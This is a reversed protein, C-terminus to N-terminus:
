NISHEELFAIAQEEPMPKGFLFGQFYDCNEQALNRLQLDFEVGEAIVGLKLTHALDIITATMAMEVGENMLEKIFARDIKLSTIPLRQLHSLSSYGTGFDDLSIRVGADRIQKLVEITADYSDIFISETVEIELADSSLGTEELANRITEVITRNRLQVISINVSMIIDEFGLAKLKVGMRCAEKLVWEGMPVILGTEEAIPIFDNPFVLVGDGRFWRILVEFGRVRGDQVGIIPQYFLKFENKVLAVRLGREIQMRSVARKNMMEDYFCFTNRGAQKAADLAIDANKLLDELNDGDNPFTAIGVSATIFLDNGLIQRSVNFKERIREAITQASQAEELGNLFIIFKDGGLRAITDMERVCEALKLATDKLLEDGVSHGLTDNITKFRDLDVFLIACSIDSRKAHSLGLSARELFLIRNPFTTLTDYYSLTMVRNELHKHDTIDEASGLVQWPEGTSTRAFLVDRSRLSRWQGSADKMRYEIERMTGFQSLSQHHEIVKPVDDPHMINIFLDGGMEKIQEPTYGLFDVTERNCYINKKNILDYVYILNPTSNLVSNVFHQSQSLAEESHKYDTVDVAVGLVCPSDVGSATFPIKTTSLLRIQGQANTILEQPIFKPKGSNIVELDDQLFHKVQDPYKIFDADMKGILNEVTTGYAKAIARNVLIFHGEKDKAFIFHPVLDIIQRLREEKLLLMREVKKRDTIDLISVLVKSLDDEHGPVVSVQFMLDMSEGKLSRVPAEGTWQTIGGALAILEEKFTGLSDDTFYQDLKHPVLKKDKVGLFKLGAQNFDVIRVMSACQKVAQPNNNFYARWDTVGLSRQQDFFKKVDSFDEEWISVAANEFLHWYKRESQRLSFTAARFFVYLVTSSIIVYCLDKFYMAQNFTQHDKILFILIINSFYIWFFSLIAYPLVIKIPVLRSGARYHENPKMFM